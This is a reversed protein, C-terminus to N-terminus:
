RVRRWTRRAARRARGGISSGPPALAAAEEDTLRTLVAREYLRDVEPADVFRDGEPTSIVIGDFVNKIPVALVRKVRGFERGETSLVPTGKAVAMYSTPDGHDVARLTGAGRARLAFGARRIKAV